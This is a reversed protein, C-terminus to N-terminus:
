LDEPAKGDRSLSAVSIAASPPRAPAAYGSRGAGSNQPFNLKADPGKLQLALIDYARAAQLSASSEPQHQLILGAGAPLATPLPM